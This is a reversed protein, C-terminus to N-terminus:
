NVSLDILSCEPAADEVDSDTIDAFPDAARSTSIMQQVSRLRYLGTHCPQGEKLCHIENDQSGDGAVTLACSQFSRVILEKGLSDWADLVWSVIERRPPGRMNEQQQSPIRVTPWGNTMNKRLEPRSLSTGFWM